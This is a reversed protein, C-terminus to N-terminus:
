GTSSSRRFRAGGRLGGFAALYIAARYRDDIAEAVLEVQEVTLFHQEDHVRDEPMPVRAFPSGVILGDDVAEAFVQGTTLLIAKM